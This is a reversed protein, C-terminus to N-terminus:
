EDKSLNDIMKNIVCDFAKTDAEDFGETMIKSLRELQSRCYRHAEKGKETLRIKNFRLDKEDTLKEILGSSQMRRISVAVSAPSIMVRECIEKQSCAGLEDIIKLIPPQGPYIEREALHQHLHKRILINVKFLKEVTLLERDSV